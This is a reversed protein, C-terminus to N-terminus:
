LCHPGDGTRRGAGCADAAGAAAAQGGGLRHRPVLLALAITLWGKELVMTLALALAAVAGTAFLAAGAALGPRPARRDLNKTALAYLVSLLLAAAAFPLSPEFRAIRYYLAALVALPVFM